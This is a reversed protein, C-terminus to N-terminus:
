NLDTAGTIRIKYTGKGYKFPTLHLVVRQPRALKTTEVSRGSAGTTDAQAFACCILATAANKDLLEYNIGTTGDSSKADVTIIVKGAGANFSYFYGTESGNLNGKIEDSTLQTPHDRDTSQAFASGTAAIFLLLSVVVFLCKKM